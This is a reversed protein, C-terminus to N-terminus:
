IKKNLLLLNNGNGNTANQGTNGTNAFANNSDDKKWDWQYDIEFNNKMM